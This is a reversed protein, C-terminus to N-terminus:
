FLAADDVQYIEKENEATRLQNEKKWQIKERQYIRCYINKENEM